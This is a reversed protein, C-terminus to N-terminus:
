ATRQRQCPGFKQNPLGQIVAVRFQGVDFDIITTFLRERVNGAQVLKLAFRRPTIFTFAIECCNRVPLSQQIRSESRILQLLRM